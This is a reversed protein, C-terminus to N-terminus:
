FFIGTSYLPSTLKDSSCFSIIVHHSALCLLSCWWQDFLRCKDKCFGVCYFELAGIEEAGVLERHGCSDRERTIRIFSVMSLLHSAVVMSPLPCVPGHPSRVRAEDSHLDAKTSRQTRLIPKERIPCKERTWNIRAKRTWGMSGLVGKQAGM